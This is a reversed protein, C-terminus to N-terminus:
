LVILLSHLTTFGLAELYIHLLMKVGIFTLLVSLGIKLFRFLNIIHVIVFFLSRLGLIAFINSFFVIYPDQTVSFIAPVSDVAFIVDSFEIVLLTILLPTIMSKRNKRIVFYKGVYKPYVPLFKGTFRVVPHRATDIQEKNNREVFMKIGTFVLLVGFVYLFWSFEQILASCLFIFLFRLVIAGLIGWFLVRKYYKEQVNFALFIMIMVFINDVSLAYEILYGTIYELSLNHRYIALAQAFTENKLKIPHGHKVIIAKLQDMNQIGHIRDGFFMILVYFVLALSVWVATWTLAEKFPVVHSQKDFFGLDLTLVSLIFIIFGFFFIIEHTNM